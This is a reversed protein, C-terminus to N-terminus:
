RAQSPSTDSFLCHIWATDWYESDAGELMPGYAVPAHGHSICGPRVVTLPLNPGVPAGVYLVIEPGHPDIAPSQYVSEVFTQILAIAAPRSLVLLERQGTARVVEAVCHEDGPYVYIAGGVVEAVNSSTGVFASVPKSSLVTALIGSFRSEVALRGNKVTFVKRDVLSRSGEHVLEQLLDKNSYDVGVVAAPWLTHHHAAVALVEPPSLKLTM